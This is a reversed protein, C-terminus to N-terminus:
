NSVYQHCAPPALRCAARRFAGPALPLVTPKGCAMGARVAAMSAQAIRPRGDRDPPDGIGVGPLGASFVPLSERDGNTVLRRYRPTRPAPNGPPPEPRGPGNVAFM